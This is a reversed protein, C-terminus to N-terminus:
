KDEPINIEANMIIQFIENVNTTAFPLIGFLMQYLIIGLSWWDSSHSILTNQLIEPAIYEISDKVYSSEDQKLTLKISSFDTLRIHGNDDFMINRPTLDSFVVDNQHLYELGLIIECIILRAKEESLKGQKNLLKALTGGKLYDYVFFFKYSTQFSFQLTVIYPHKMMLLQHRESMIQNKLEKDASIPKPVSKMAYQQNSQKHRVLTVQGMSGRGIIREMEFSNICISAESDENANEMNVTETSTVISENSEIKSKLKKAQKSSISHQM